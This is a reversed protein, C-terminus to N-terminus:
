GAALSIQLGLFVFAAGSTRDIVAMVGPRRLWPRVGGTIASLMTFWTLTILVHIVALFLAEGGGTAEPPLFQPLLTLYFLGVKPNLLNTTLGQRYARAVSGASLPGAGELSFIRRPQLILKVGLWALYAAGAWKLIEFAVPWAALLAGLGFAASGGWCLCGTAVGLATALGRRVGDSAASRMVMATDLGPAVTLLTAAVLYAPLSEILM